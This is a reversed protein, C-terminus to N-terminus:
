LARYHAAHRPLTGARGFMEAIAREVLLYGAVANHDMVLEAGSSYSIRTTRAPATSHWSTLVVAPLRKGGAECFFSAEFVSNNPDGIRRLSARAVLPAFREIVSLANIGSDIWSSGLTAAAGALGARYPDTSWSEIAVPSDLLDARSGVQGLAWDVETSFAM